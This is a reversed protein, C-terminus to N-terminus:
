SLTVIRGSNALDALGQQLLMDSSSEGTFGVIASHCPRNPHPDEVADLQAGAAEIGRIRMANLIAVRQPRIKLSLRLRALSGEINRRTSRAHVCEVWDTSLRGRDNSGPQFATSQVDGNDVSRPHVGRAVHHADPIQDEAAM